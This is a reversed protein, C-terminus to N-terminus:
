YTKLEKSNFYKDLVLYVTYCVLVCIIILSIYYVNNGIIDRVTVNVSEFKKALYFSLSNNVFHLFIGPWISQTKWFVWGLVIGVVFAAVFQPLNYHVLGFLFASAVIAVTPNYKELFKKLIIGRFILEEFVPAAIALMIFGPVNFEIEEMMRKLMESEPFLNIIGDLLISLSIIFPIILLYVITKVRKSNFLAIKIWYKVIIVTIGFSVIYSIAYKWKDLVPVIKVVGQMVLGVLVSLIILLVIVLLAHIIGFSKVEDKSFNVLKM